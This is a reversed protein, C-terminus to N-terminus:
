SDAATVSEVKQGNFVNQGEVYETSLDGLTPNDPTGEGTLTITFDDEYSELRGVVERGSDLTLLVKEGILEDLNDGSSM